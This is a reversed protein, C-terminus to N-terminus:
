KRWQLNLRNLTLSWVFNACNKKLILYKQFLNVTKVVFATCHTIIQLQISDFKYVNQFVYLKQWFWQLKFFETQLMSHFLCLTVSGCTLSFKLCFWYLFIVNSKDNVRMYLKIKRCTKVCSKDYLQKTM